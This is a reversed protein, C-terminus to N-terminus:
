FAGLHPTAPNFNQLHNVCIRKLKAEMGETTSTHHRFAHHKNKFGRLWLKQAQQAGTASRAVMEVRKM